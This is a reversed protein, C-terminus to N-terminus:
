ILGLFNNKLINTFQIRKKELSFESIARQKGFRGIELRVKEDFILRKMAEKLELKNGPEILIGSNNNSIADVVGGSRGGIVPLGCANAELFVLGFGELDGDINKNPMVFIDSAQLLELMENDETFGHFVVYNGIDLAKAQDQLAKLEPGAGCVNLIISLDINEKIIESLAVLLDDVGKRKILRCVTILSITNNLNHKEKIQNIAEPPTFKNVDVFNTLINVNANKSIEKVKNVTYSSVCINQDALLLGENQKRFFWKAIIGRPMMTLEEGHIYNIVKYKKSISETLWSLWRIGGNIVVDPNIQDILLTIEGKREQLYSRFEFVRKLKSTSLFEFTIKEVRHVRIGTEIFYANDDMDTIAKSCIIHVDYQQNRCLNEYVQVAGGYNDPRFFPTLLVIKM